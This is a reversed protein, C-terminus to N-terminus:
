KVKSTSYEVIKDVKKNELTVVADDVVKELGYRYIGPVEQVNILKSESDLELGAMAYMTDKDYVENTQEIGNMLLVYEVNGNSTERPMYLDGTNDNSFYRFYLRSTSETNQNISTEQAYKWEPIVFYSNQFIYGVIQQACSDIKSFEDSLITYYEYNILNDVSTLYDQSFNARGTWENTNIIRGNMPEGISANVTSKVMMLSDNVYAKETPSSIYKSLNIMNEVKTDTNLDGAIILNIAQQIQTMYEHANTVNMNSMAYPYLGNCFELVSKALECDWKIGVSQQYLIVFSDKEQTERILQEAQAVYDNEGAVIIPKETAVPEEISITDDSNSISDSIIKGASYGAAGVGLAAVAALIGALRRRQNSALKKKNLEKQEQTLKTWDNGLNNKEEQKDIVESTQIKSDERENTVKKLNDQSLKVNNIVKENELDFSIETGDNYKVCLSDNLKNISSIQKMNSVIKKLEETSNVLFAVPTDKIDNSERLKKLQEEDDVFVIIKQNNNSLKYLVVDSYNFDKGQITKM